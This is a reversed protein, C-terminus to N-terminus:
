VKGKWRQFAQFNPVYNQPKVWVPATPAAVTPMAFALDEPRVPANTSQQILSWDEVPLKRLPQATAPAVEERQPAAVILTPEATPAVEESRQAVVPIAKTKGQGLVQDAYQFTDPAKPNRPDRVAEGRRAKAMAGPGGYYGIAVLRPDGQALTNLQKIYRLGARANQEPDDINWDKDAVSAFTSPIIQMGGRAGANSTQTNKGGSSEQQYIRRALDALPGSMGEKSLASDFVPQSM